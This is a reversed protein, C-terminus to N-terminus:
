FGQYVFPEGVQGLSFLFIGLAALALVAARAPRPWALVALEDGHRYQVWDIWVAPLIVLFVRSDPLPLATFAFLQKWFALAAPLSARFLAGSLIIAAWLLATSLYRRPWPRKAPSVVPRWLSPLSEAVLLSGLFVGWLIFNLGTGHWVGSAIMTVVPPLVFSAATWRGRSRRLLARSLPFYIYEKLWNTLTMHWRSWFESLNRAVLPWAFNKSLEIGFLGSLGRVIDTYGAFDNYLGFIYAVMWLLLALSSHTEPRVMLNGPVAKLLTDAVIIKRGLGIIILSLSRSLAADDVVRPRGLRPIFDRLREIPGATLKPFYALALAFDPLNRCAPAQGRSVDLLYAIAQLTYFSLGIPLLIKLGEARLGLPALLGLLGPLFFDSLRFFALAALNAGIGLALWRGRRPADPGLRLGVAYTIATLVLLVLVFTPSWTLYFVYSALLLLVNQAKFGLFHYLVLVLLSFGFFTLSVTSV